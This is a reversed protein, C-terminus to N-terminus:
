RSFLPIVDKGDASLADIRKFPPPTATLQSRVLEWRVRQWFSFNVYLLLVWDSTATSRYKEIKADIGNLAWLHGGALVEELSGAYRPSPLRGAAMEALDEKCADHRRRHPRLAESVEVKEGDVTFDPREGDVISFGNRGGPRCWAEVVWREREKKGGNSFFHIQDKFHAELEAALATM